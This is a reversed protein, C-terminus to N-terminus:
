MKNADMLMQGEVIEKESSTIVRARSMWASADYTFFEADLNEEWAEVKGINGEYDKLTEYDYFVLHSKETM